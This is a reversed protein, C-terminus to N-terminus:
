KPLEINGNELPTIREPVDSGSTLVVQHHKRIGGITSRLKKAIIKM